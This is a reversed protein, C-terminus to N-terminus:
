NNFTCHPGDTCKIGCPYNNGHYRNFHGTVDTIPKSKSAELTKFMVDFMTSLENDGILPAGNIMRNVFRRLNIRHGIPQDTKIIDGCEDLVTRVDKLTMEPKLSLMVAVAGSVHPASMSTGSYFAYKNGPITSFIPHGPAAAGSDEGYNSFFAREEKGNTMTTATASIVEQYAGPYYRPNGRDGLNGKSVVMIVKKTNVAYKVADHLVKFDRPGGLSMNIVKAGHDAAWVIGKAINSFTGSNGSLVRVPMVAACPTAVGTVNDDGSEMVITGTVHTGHSEDATKNRPNNNNDVINWGPVIHKKIRAHDIDVGTDIVAVIVKEVPKLAKHAAYTETIELNWTKSPPTSLSGITPELNLTEDLNAIQVNPDLRLEALLEEDDSVKIWGALEDYNHEPYLDEIKANHKAVLKDFSNMGVSNGHYLDPVGKLRVNYVNVPKNIPVSKVVPGIEKPIPRINPKVIYVAFNFIGYLTLTM